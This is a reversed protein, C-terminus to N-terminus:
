PAPTFNSATAVGSNILDTRVQDDVIHEYGGRFFHLGASPAPYFETDLENPNPPLNVAGIEDTYSYYRLEEYVGPSVEQTSIGRPMRFREMLPNWAFPSEEVTNTTYIWNAM